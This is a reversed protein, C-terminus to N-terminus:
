LKKFSTIDLSLKYNDTRNQVPLMIGFILKLKQLDTYFGQSSANTNESSISYTGDKIFIYFNMIYFIKSNIYNIRGLSINNHDRIQVGWDLYNLQVGMKTTTTSNIENVDTFGVFLTGINYDSSPVQLVLSLKTISNVNSDVINVLDNFLVGGNVTSNGILEFGKSNVQLTNQINGRSNEIILPNTITEEYNDVILLLPSTLNALGLHNTVKIEYYGLEFLKFNHYISLMNQNLESVSVSATLDIWNGIEPVEDITKIKRIEVKSREKDIFLNNGSIIVSIPFDNSNKLLFPNVFLLVPANSNFKENSKRSAVRWAEKQADTAKSMENTLAYIGVENLSGKSDMGLLRNYTADNHKSVLASMRQSANTWNMAVGSIDVNKNADPAVGMVKDVKGFDSKPATSGDALLVYDPTNNTTPKNIKKNLEIQTATSIPKNLDSTNDVDGLGIQSKTVNHPNAKNSTHATLIANTTYDSNNELDSTKLIVDGTQGNVSKVKGFETKPATSGDGLIVFQNTNNTTPKDLKLNDASIRDQIEKNLKNNTTYDSDNQLDSTKLIVDGEKGNVSKVKGFDTAKLKASNGLDDVGVINPYTTITGSTTPKDLKNPFADTLGDQGDFKFYSDLDSIYIIQGEKSQTSGMFENAQEETQFLFLNGGNFVEDGISIKMWANNDCIGFGTRSTQLQYDSYGDQVVTAVMGDQRLKCPISELEELTQVVVHSFYDTNFFPPLDCNKNVTVPSNISSGKSINNKKLTKM